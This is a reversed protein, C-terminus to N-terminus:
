IQNRIVKQLKNNFLKDYEKPGLGYMNRNKGASLFTKNPRKISRLDQSLKRQFETRVPEFEINRIIEYLDNKFNHLIQKRPPINLTRFGFSKTETEEKNNKLFHYVKCTIACLLTRNLWYSRESLCRQQESTHEQNFIRSKQSGYDM